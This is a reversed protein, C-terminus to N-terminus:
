GFVEFLAQKAEAPSTRKLEAKIKSSRLQNELSGCDLYILQLNSPWSQLKIIM